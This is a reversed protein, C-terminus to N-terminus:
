SRSHKTRKRQSGRKRMAKPQALLKSIRNAAATRAARYGRGRPAHLLAKQADVLDRAWQARKKLFAIRQEALGVIVGLQPTSPIGKGASWRSITSQTVNLKGALEQQSIPLDSLFEALAERLPGWEHPDLYAVWWPYKQGM